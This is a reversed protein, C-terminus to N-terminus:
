RCPDMLASAMVLAPLPLRCPCRIQSQLEWDLVCATISGLRLGAETCHPGHKRTWWRPQSVGQSVRLGPVLGLVSLTVAQFVQGSAWGRFPGRYPVSVDRGQKRMPEVISLHLGKQTIYNGCRSASAKPRSSVSWCM